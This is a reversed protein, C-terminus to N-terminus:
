MGERSEEFVKVLQYLTQLIPMAKQGNEARRIIAGVITEVETKRHHLRDALMSSTNNATKECLQQVDAFSVIEQVDPFTLIIENYLSQMLFFAEKNRILEGNKIQLIATLPNIFCNLIAKEFLMQEAQQEYQVRVANSSLIHLKDFKEIEGRAVALKMVGAGRQAVRHAGLKQAGFQVSSFAIHQQPLELAEGYHALGNQMFLLPMEASCRQLEKYIEPLQHYKVTIITLCDDRLGTTASVPYSVRVGDLQECILQSKNLEAAQQETRTVLTVKWRAASALSAVFLGIAGGGVIQIHVAM